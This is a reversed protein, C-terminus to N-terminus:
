NAIDALKEGLGDLKEMASDMNAEVVFKKFYEMLYDRDLNRGLKGLFSHKNSKKLLSAILIVAM